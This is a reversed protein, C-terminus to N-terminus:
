AFIATAALSQMGDDWQQNTSLACQCGIVGPTMRFSVLNKQDTKPLEPLYPFHSVYGHIVM